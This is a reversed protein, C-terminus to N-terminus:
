SAVLSLDAIQEFGQQLHTLLALRNQRLAPDEAMVMVDNFFAELPEALQALANLAEPYDGQTVAEDVQVQLPQWAQWLQQEAAEQLLEVAVPQGNEGNKRLINRIRKASALLSAAQESNIFTTLARVRTDFDLLDDGNLARVAQYSDAPIGQDNYFGQLRELIYDCVPTVQESANLAPAFTAATKALWERLPLTLKKEIILRILGIAMRRLAYPDKSGTPKAGIAFGGILTDLKEAIALATGTATQPLGGGAGTPFYQEELAASIQGNLGEQEAYYRGMLGQLEPFEMVMESQLDSKALTAATQADAVSAGTVAALEGALTRVRRTKDALSGLQEQYVVNELRPLYDALKRKLDQQWFFEADAFRPRIVKENGESVSQPDKSELNAVAIFVPLLKGVSDVVAFTKQNDQMTTILVEQPVDLFRAEFHGAIAVPWETLSAVESVLAEPMVAVGGLAEAQAQVQARIRVCRANHSAIVFGDQLNQEYSLANKVTVPEPHHVRHGLSQNGSQVGFYDLNWIQDDALVLLTNVPRVFSQEFDSWRMRKAIPLKQMVQAFLGAFLSEVSQGAQEGRYMLWPGKATEELLLQDASVGCSAAFGQAAKSWNGESDKAAKLSPGKREIIQDPQKEALGRIRWALRRPSGFSEIEDYPISAEALVVQWLEAGAEALATVAKTPLEEVGVEILLNLTKSM